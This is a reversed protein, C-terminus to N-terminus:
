GASAGPRGDSTCGGWWSPELPASRVDCRVVICVSRGRHSHGPSPGAGRPTGPAIGHSAVPRDIGGCMALCKHPVVPMGLAPGITPGTNRSYHDAAMAVCDMRVACIPSAPGRSRPISNMRYTSNSNWAFAEQHPAFHAPSFEQLLQNQLSSNQMFEEFPHGFPAPSGARLSFVPASQPLPSPAPPLCPHHPTPCLAQRLHSEGLLGSVAMYADGIIDACYLGERTLITDFEKYLRDLMDIIEQCSVQLRTHVGETFTGPDTRWGPQALIGTSAEPHVHTHAKQPSPGGRTSPTRQGRMPHPTFPAPEFIALPPCLGCHTPNAEGCTAGVAGAVTAKMATLETHWIMNRM